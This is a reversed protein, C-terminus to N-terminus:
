FYAGTIRQAQQCPAVLFEILLDPIERSLDVTEEFRM